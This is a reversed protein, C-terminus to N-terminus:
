YSALAEPMSAFIPFVRDFGVISFVKRLNGPPIVLRCSALGRKTRTRQLRALLELCAADIYRTRAFNLIVKASVAAHEFLAELKKRNWMDCEAAVEIVIPEENLNVPLGKM